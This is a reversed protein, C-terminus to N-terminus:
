RLAEFVGLPIPIYAVESFFFYLSTPLVLALAVSKIWSSLGLGRTGALILFMCGVVVGLHPIFFYFAFLGLLVLFIRFIQIILSFHIIDEAVTPNNNHTEKKYSTDETQAWLMLGQILVIIGCAFLIIMIINPWFDPSLALLKVSKPLDIGVPIVVLWGFVSVTIATIGIYVDRNLTRM